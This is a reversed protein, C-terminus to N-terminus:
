CHGSKAMESQCLHLVYTGYQTSYPLNEVQWQIWFSPDELTVGETEYFMVLTQANMELGLIVFDTRWILFFYTAAKFWWEERWTFLKEEIIDVRRM